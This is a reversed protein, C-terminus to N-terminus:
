RKCISMLSSGRIRKSFIISDLVMFYALIKHVFVSIGRPATITTNREGSTNLLVRAPWYLLHFLYETDVVSWGGSRLTTELGSLDYRRFHGNFVDYNSWLEQRAPVTVILHQANPFHERILALFSVPDSIHEIVDFLMVVEISAKFDGTLSVFDFGCQVYPAVNNVPSIKALDVGYCDFGRQRLYDVVIGRGCGVELIKKDRLNNEELERKIIQNRGNTWYHNEIGEPYISMFQEESFETKSM